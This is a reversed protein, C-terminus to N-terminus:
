YQLTFAPRPAFRDGVSDFAPLYFTMLCSSVSPPLFLRSFSSAAMKTDLTIASLIHLARPKVHSVHGFATSCNNFCAKAHLLKTHIYHNIWAVMRYLFVFPPPLIFTAHPVLYRRLPSPRIFPVFCSFIDSLPPCFLYQLRRLSSHSASPRVCVWVQLSYWVSCLFVRASFITGVQDILQGVCPLYWQVVTHLYCRPQFMSSHVSPSPSSTEPCNKAMNLVRQM